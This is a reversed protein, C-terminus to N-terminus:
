RAQQVLADLQAVVAPDDWHIAGNVGYVIRGDPGIVFSSPYVLVNWSASVRGDADLLVPFDVEVTHLFERVLGADEAYDVSVLEFPKGQMIDRLRNLSPIEEVCPPCWSAWFNVLTVKGTYDARTVLAGATDTLRLTAPAPDGRYAKLELDLGHPATPAQDVLERAQLPTPAKYLADLVRGIDRPLQRLVAMTAKAEDDKYFVGTVGPLVKLWVVAGGAQLNEIVREMQWRNGRKGSQYLMVPVNTATAIPDYVPELGLTPIASYLDPSFLIVGSLYSTATKLSQQQLQWLRVGRLVPLAGYSLTMLTVPKGTVRHAHEILAAVYRGDLSRMTSTTKPLFLSEALDVLWVEVGEAALKESTQVFRQNSGYGPAVWIVLHKGNAPYREVTLEQDLVNVPVEEAAHSFGPVPLLCVLLSLFTSLRPKM